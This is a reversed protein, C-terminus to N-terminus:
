EASMEEAEKDLQKIKEEKLAKLEKELEQIRKYRSVLLADREAIKYQAESLQLQLSQIIFNPNLQEQKQEM